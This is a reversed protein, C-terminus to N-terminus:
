QSEMERLWLSYSSTDNLGNPVRYLAPADRALGGGLSELTVLDSSDLGASSYRQLTSHVRCLPIGPCNM